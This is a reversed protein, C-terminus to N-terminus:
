RSIEMVEYSYGDPDKVFFINRSNPESPAYGAAKLRAALARADAVTLMIRSLGNGVEIRPASRAEAGWQRLLVFPFQEGGPAIVTVGPGPKGPLSRGVTMGLGQTYFRLSRNLDNVMLVPGAIHPANARAVASDAAMGKAPIASFAIVGALALIRGKM